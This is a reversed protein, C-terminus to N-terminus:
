SYESKEQALNAIECYITGYYRRPLTHGMDKLILLKSNPIKRAFEISHKTQILPDSDGHILLKPIASSELKKYRSGSRLVAILQHISSDPRIPQKNKLQYESIQRIWEFDTDDIKKPDLVKWIQSNIAFYKDMKNMCRPKEATWGLMLFTFYSRLSMNFPHLYAGSMISTISLIREPKEISMQQVIMGGLSVGVAHVQHIAECDLIAFADFAMDSLTFKTSGINKVFSTGGTCRNDFRIVGFGNELFAELFKNSWGFGDISLGMVFLFTVGNKSTVHEYRIKVDGNQAYKVDSILVKEM